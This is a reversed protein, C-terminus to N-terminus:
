TGSERGCKVSGSISANSVHGYQRRAAATKLRKPTSMSEVRTSARICSAYPLWHSSGRTAGTSSTTGPVQTSSSQCPGVLANLSM